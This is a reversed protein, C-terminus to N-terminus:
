RVVDGGGDSGNRMERQRGEKEKEISSIKIHQVLRLKKKNNIADKIGTYVVKSEVKTCSSILLQIRLLIYPNYIQPTPISFKIKIFEPFSFKTLQENM